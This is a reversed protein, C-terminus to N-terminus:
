LESDQPWEEESLPQTPDYLIKAGKYLSSHMKLPDKGEEIPVIDAIPKGNRCLRIIEHHTELRHLLASLQTKAEHINVTIM